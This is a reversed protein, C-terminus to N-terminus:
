CEPDELLALAGGSRLVRDATHAYTGDADHLIM